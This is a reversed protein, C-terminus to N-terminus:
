GPPGLVVDFDPWEPGGAARRLQPLVLAVGESLAVDLEGARRVLADLAQPTEEAGLQDPETVKANRLFRERDKDVRRADLPDTWGGALMGRQAPPGPYGPELWLKLLRDGPETPRHVRVALGEAVDHRARVGEALETQGIGAIAPTVGAQALRELAEAGRRATDPDALAAIAELVAAAAPTARQELRRVVLRRLRTDPGTRRHPATLLVALVEAGESTPRAELAPLAQDLLRELDDRADLLDDIV